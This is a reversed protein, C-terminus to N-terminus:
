CDMSERRTTTGTGQPGTRVQVALNVVRGDPLLKGNATVFLTHIDDGLDVQTLTELTIEDLLYM